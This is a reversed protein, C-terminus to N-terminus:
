QLAAVMLVMVLANTVMHNIIGPLISGTKEFAYANAAAFLFKDILWWPTFEVHICAFFASSVIIAPWISFHRRLAPYLIGRFAIEELVPALIAYGFFLIALAPISGSAVLLETSVTSSKQWPFHYWYSFITAVMAPTWTLIFCELGIKILQKTTYNETKFYLRVFDVFKGKNVQWTAALIIPLLLLLEDLNDLWARKVPDFYSVLLVTPEESLPGLALGEAVFGAIAFILATFAILHPKLWGYPYPCAVSLPAQPLQFIKQKQVILYVLFALGTLLFGVADVLLSQNVDHDVAPLEGLASKAKIPQNSRSYIDSILYSRITDPHIQDRLYQAQEDAGLKSAALASGDSTTCGLIGMLHAAKDCRDLDKNATKEKIESLQLCAAQDPLASDPSLLRRLVYDNAVIVPDTPDAQLCRHNHEIASKLVANAAPKYYPKLSEFIVIDRSLPYGLTKSGTSNIAFPKKSDDNLTVSVVKMLALPFQLDDLARDIKARQENSCTIRVRASPEGVATGMSISSIPIDLKRALQEVFYRRSRDIRLTENQNESDLGVDSETSDVAKLATADEAEPGSALLSAEQFALACSILISLAALIWAIARIM